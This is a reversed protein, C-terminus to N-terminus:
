VSDRGDYLRRLEERVGSGCLLDKLISNYKQISYYVFVIYIGAYGVDIEM